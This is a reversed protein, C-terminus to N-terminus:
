RTNQQGNLQPKAVTVFISTGKGAASQITLQGNISLARKKMSNLGSTEISQNVDFGKGDDVIGLTITDGKDDISINVHSAQAHYMTNILAEQCIRFFDVEIEHTLSMEDYNSEFVCRIGNLSSFERCHWRLTANLGLDNLMNPSIAFSMRRITNILLDSVVLAHELRNKSLESLGPEKTSLWDVDMKVVSALQALEEHLEAALYKRDEEISSKFHSALSKLNKYKEDVEKQIEKRTTVDKAIAFVVEKDPFYISSWELWIIGGSKTVYRNEFNVLAKGKLLASRQESTSEKDVHYIFSAISRSLLEEESYGLTRIVAPNVKKFFGAKDAICVLDPTMEFFSFLEFESNQLEPM